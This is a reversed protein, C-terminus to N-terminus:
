IQYSVQQLIIKIRSLAWNTFALYDLLAKNSYERVRQGSFAIKYWTFDMPSENM